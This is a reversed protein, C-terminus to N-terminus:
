FVERSLDAQRLIVVQKGEVRVSGAKEFEKLIRIFTERTVGAMAALEQRTLKLDIWIGNSATMGGEPILDILTRAVKGYADSFIAAGIKENAKRLRRSLTALMKLSWQPDQRILQLFSAQELIFVRSREIATVTASRPHGDLLAMEGFFEGPHLVRLIVEKGHRDTLTVKVRGSKLIFLASGPEKAHFLARNEEYSKEQLLSALKELREPPLDRFLPIQRLIASREVMQNCGSECLDIKSESVGGFCSVKPSLIFAPQNYRVQIFRDLM